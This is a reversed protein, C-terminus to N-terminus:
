LTPLVLAFPFHNLMHKRLLESGSGTFLIRSFQKGNGVTTECIDTAAIPPLTSESGFRFFSLALCISLFRPTYGGEAVGLLSPTRDNEV